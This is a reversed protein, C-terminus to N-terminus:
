GNLADSVSNFMNEVSGGILGVATIIVISILSAILAYEIATAGRRNLFFALALYQAKQFFGGMLVGRFRGEFRLHSVVM